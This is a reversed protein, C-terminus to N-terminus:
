QRRHGSLETGYDDRISDAIDALTTTACNDSASTKDDDVDDDIQLKDIRRQQGALWAQLSTYKALEKADARQLAGVISDELSQQLRQLQSGADVANDRLLNYLAVVERPSLKLKLSKM